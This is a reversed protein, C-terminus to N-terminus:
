KPKGLGLNDLQSSTLGVGAWIQNVMSRVSNPDATETTKVQAMFQDFFGGKCEPGASKPCTKLFLVLIVLILFADSIPKLRPVYGIAGIILISLLWYIFNNPGIFDGQVLYFLQGQTNRVAAILLVIGAVILVFPM